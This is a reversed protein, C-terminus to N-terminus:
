PPAHALLFIEKSHRHSSPPKVFRPALLGSDRLTDRAYNESGNRFIKCLFVGRPALYPLTAAALDFLAEARSADLSRNGTAKPAMDSAILGFLAGEEEEEEKELMDLYAEIGCTHHTHALRPSLGALHSEVDRHLPGLDVTVLEVVEGEKRKGKGKGRRKGKTPDRPTTVLTDGIEVSWSGPCAGLELVRPLPLSTLINHKANIQSLKYSARSLKADQAARRTWEEERGGTRARWTRRAGPCPSTHLSRLFRRTHSLTTPQVLSPHKDM